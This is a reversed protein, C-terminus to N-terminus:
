SGTCCSSRARGSGSNTRDRVAAHVRRIGRAPHARPVARHRASPAGTRDAAPAGRESRTASRPPSSASSRPSSRSRASVVFTLEYRSNGRLLDGLAPGFALGGYVAVSWYSIAEGRREVPSLDTIMTAAGVFFGAEGFGTVVRMLVIWWLAHVVGYALTSGAVILAGGIILVRRGVREGLRGAYLRLTIAGFSFALVTVGVAISGNGM